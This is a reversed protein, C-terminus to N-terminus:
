TLLPTILRAHSDLGIIFKRRYCWPSPLICLFQTCPVRSGSHSVQMAQHWSRLCIESCRRGHESHRDCTLLILGCSAVNFDALTWVFFNLTLPYLLVSKFPNDLTFVGYNSDFSVVHGLENDVLRFLTTM